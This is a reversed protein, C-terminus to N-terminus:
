RNTLPFAIYAIFETKWLQDTREYQGLLISTCILVCLYFSICNELYVTDKVVIMIGRRLLCRLSTAPDSKPRILPM